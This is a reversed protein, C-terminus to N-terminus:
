RKAHAMAVPNFYETCRAILGERLDFRFVYVNPYDTGSNLVFEGHCQVFVTSGDASVTFERQTFSMARMAGFLQKMHALTADKGRFLAADELRGSPAMPILKDCDETMLTALGIPDKHEIADLLASVVALATDQHADATLTM